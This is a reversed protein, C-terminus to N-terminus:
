TGFHLYNKWGRVDPKHLGQRYAQLERFVSQVILGFPLQVQSSVFCSAHYDSVLRCTTCSMLSVATRSELYGSTTDLAPKMLSRLQTCQSGRRKEKEEDEHRKPLQPQRSTVMPADLPFITMPTYYSTKDLKKVFFCYDEVACVPTIPTSCRGRDSFCFLLRSRNQTLHQTHCNHSGCCSPCWSHRCRGRLWGPDALAFAPSLGVERGAEQVVNM